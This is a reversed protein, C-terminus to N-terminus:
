CISSFYGGPVDYFSWAAGEFGIPRITGLLNLHFGLSRAQERRVVHSLIVLVLVPKWLWPTSSPVGLHVGYHRRIRRAAGPIRTESHDSSKLTAGAYRSM